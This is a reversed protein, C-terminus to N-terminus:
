VKGQFSPEGYAAARTYSGFTEQRYDLVTHTLHVFSPCVQRHAIKSNCEKVASARQEDSLGKVHIELLARTDLARREEADTFQRIQILHRKEISSLLTETLQRHDSLQRKVDSTVKYAADQEHTKNYLDKM